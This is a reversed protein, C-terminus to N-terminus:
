SRGLERARETAARVAGILGSRVAAAELVELGAITTGGPSTVAERLVAPHSGTQLVMKAAGALTQAALRLSLDRPLGMLVGGDSLAEIVLYAYAPGSGSLGTVADLLPEKVQGIFGVAGFLQEVLLSDGPNALTGAAYASAASHVLAPTNPMVRIIRVSPGAATELTALPLGAVISIVLKGGVKPRLAELAPIADNPKVCLVIAECAQALEENTHAMHAGTERSLAQAAVKVSDSLWVQAPQRIGNKLIGRVLASSM